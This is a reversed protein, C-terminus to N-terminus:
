KGYQLIWDAPETELKGNVKVNRTKAWRYGWTWGFRNLYTEPIRYAADSQATDLTVFRYHRDEFLQLVQEIMESNLQNDHLLMVHPPEYGLVQRNLRSYYDIETGTYALYESRLRAAAADDKKALMKVYANNFIYDSNDITCTAVKYGRGALFAAIADHKEKTDGTHNMPFRFYTLKKGAKQMLPRIVTEGRIIEQEIEEVSLQNIDPHSYSHNALDFGHHIWDELIRTGADGLADARKQIVFGTVPIHRAEFVALMKASYPLDDVTIAVTREQAWASFAAILLAALRM